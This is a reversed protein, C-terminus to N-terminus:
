NRSTTGNSVAGESKSKYEKGFVALVTMFLIKIDGWLSFQELGKLNYYMKEPLIKETYVQNADEVNNLLRAEDKYYISALSTIGAPLLLTAMMEETYAAVFKPTEPRVGVFTMTGQLVDILQATEDLKCNRLIKGVRTIRTDHNVTLQSGKDAGQVMTRFKHIRFRKGYQTVREQRYFVPGPSEVKIVIALFLYIPFFLVIAAFSLVLDLGRKFFLETKRKQLIDYYRKVEETQMEQPLQEWEVINV